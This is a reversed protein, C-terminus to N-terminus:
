ISQDLFSNALGNVLGNYSGGFLVVHNLAHYLNYIDRRQTYGSELPWVEQYARYFADPQRGFLKTMAIDVERDAYYPAPDYFVATNAQADVGLNGSWLDGHVLSPSVSHSLLENLSAIINRVKQAYEDGLGALMARELMPQLRQERFFEAWATTWQNPQPTLGIFNDNEWGFQDNTHKHQHALARGAQAANAASLPAIHHFSMILVARDQDAHYLLPKPYLAPVQRNIVLLSEFESKLVRAGVGSNLKAFLQQPVDNAGTLHLIFSSHIDGGYAPQAEIALASVNFHDKLITEIQKTSM